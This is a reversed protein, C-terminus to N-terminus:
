GPRHPLAKLAGSRGTGASAEIESAIVSNREVLRAETTASATALRGALRPRIRDDASAHQGRM